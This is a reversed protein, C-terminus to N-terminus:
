DPWHPGFHEMAKQKINQLRKIFGDIYCIHIYSVDPNSLNVEQESLRRNSSQYLHVCGDRRVDAKYWDDPDHLELVYENTNAQDVEWLEHQM